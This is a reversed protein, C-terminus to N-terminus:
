TDSSDALQEFTPGFRRERAGYAALCEALHQRRFEPPSQRLRGCRYIWGQWSPIPQSTALATAMVCRAHGTLPAFSPAAGPAPDDDDLAARFRWSLVAYVVLWGVVAVPILPLAYTIAKKVLADTEDTATM